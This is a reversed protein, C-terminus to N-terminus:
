RPPATPTTKSADSGAQGPATDTTPADAPVRTPQVDGVMRVAPTAPPTKDVAADVAAAASGPMSTPQVEVGIARKAQYREIMRLGVAGIVIGLLLTLLFRM